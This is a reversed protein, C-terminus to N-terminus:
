LHETVGIERRLLCPIKLTFVEIAILSLTLADVPDLAVLKSPADAAGQFPVTIGIPFEMTFYSVFLQPLSTNLFLFDHLLGVLDYCIEFLNKLALM